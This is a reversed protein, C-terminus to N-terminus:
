FYKIKLEIKFVFNSSNMLTENKPIKTESKETEVKRKLNEGNETKM